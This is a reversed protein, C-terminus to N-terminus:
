FLHTARIIEFAEAYMGPKHSRAMNLGTIGWAYGTNQSSHAKLAEIKENFVDTIDEIYSPHAIPETIEYGLVYEISFTPRSDGEKRFWRGPSFRIAGIAAEHVAKHDPHTTEGAYPLYVVSPQIERLIEMLLERTRHINVNLVKEGLFHLNKENVKMRRAVELTETRRLQQFNGTDGGDGFTIYAIFVQNGFQLHHLISGGCGIIDDDPHPAIVLVIEHDTDNM